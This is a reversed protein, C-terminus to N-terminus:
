VELTDNQPFLSSLGAEAVRQLLQGPVQEVTRRLSPPGQKGSRPDIGTRLRKVTAYFSGYAQHTPVPLLGKDHLWQLCTHTDRGHVAKWDEYGAMGKLQFVRDHVGNIGSDYARWLVLSAAEERSSYSGIRCDFTGLLGPELELGKRKFLSGLRFNFLATVHGAALTGLKQIRGNYTHPQQKGRLISAPAILMTMEDSQTYVCTGCFKGLLSVACEQMIEAFEPSFGSPFAGASRLRRLLKSFGTGDLRLSLWRDGSIRGDSNPPCPEAEAQKHKDGLESWTAKPIHPPLEHLLRGGDAQRPFNGGTFERPYRLALLRLVHSSADALTSMMSAMANSSAPPQQEDAGALLKEVPKPLTTGGLSSSSQGRLRGATTSQSQLVTEPDGNGPREMEAIKPRIGCCAGAQVANDHTRESRRKM